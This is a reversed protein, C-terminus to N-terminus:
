LKARPDIITGLVSSPAGLHDVLDILEQPLLGRTAVGSEDFEGCQQEALGVWPKDSGVRRFAEGTVGCIREFEDGEGRGGRRLDADPPDLEGRALAAPPDLRADDLDVVRVHGEEDVADHAFDLRALDVDAEHEVRDILRAAVAVAAHLCYLVAVHMPAVPPLFAEDRDERLRELLRAGPQERGREFLNEALHFASDDVPAGHTRSQLPRQLVVFGHRAQRAAAVGIEDLRDGEQAPERVPLERQEAHAVILKRRPGPRAFERRNRALAEADQAVGSDLNQAAAGLEDAERGLDLFEEETGRREDDGLRVHARAHVPAHMHVVDADLGIARPSLEGALQPEDPQEGRLGIRLRHALDREQTLLHLRNSLQRAERRLAVAGLREAVQELGEGAVLQELYRDVHQELPRHANEIQLEPGPRAHEGPAVLEVPEDRQQHEHRAVAERGGHALLDARLEGARKVAMDRGERRGERFPPEDPDLEDDTAVFALRGFDGVLLQFRPYRADQRGPVVAERGRKAARDCRLPEAPQKGAVAPGEARAIRLIRRGLPRDLVNQADLPEGLLAGDGDVEVPIGRLGAM